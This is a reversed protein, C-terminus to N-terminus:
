SPTRAQSPSADHLDVRFFIILLFMAYITAGLSWVDVRNDYQRNMSLIEPARYAPTGLFSNFYEEDMERSFGFDILVLNTPDYANALMINDPKLDRHVIGREHCAMLAEILVRVMKKATEEEVPKGLDM